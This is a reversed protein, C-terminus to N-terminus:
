RGAIACRVAVFRGFEVQVGEADRVIYVGSMKNREIHGEFTTTREQGTWGDAYPGVISVYSTADAHVLEVPATAIRSTPMTLRGAVTGDRELMQILSFPISGHDLPQHLMGKWLGCLALHSPDIPGRPRRSPLDFSTGASRWPQMALSHTSLM